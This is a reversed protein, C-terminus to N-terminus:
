KGKIICFNHTLLKLVTKNTIKNYYEFRNQITETATERAHRMAREVRNRTTNSTEAVYNYIKEISNDYLWYNKRYEIIAIVWYQFGISNVNFKLEILLKNILYYTRGYGKSGYVFNYKNNIIDENIKYM